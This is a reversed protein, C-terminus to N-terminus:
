MVKVQMRQDFYKVAQEKYQKIQEILKDVTTRFQQQDQVSWNQTNGYQNIVVSRSSQKKAQQYFAIAENCTNIVKTRVYNNAYQEFTGDRQMQFQLKMSCDYCMKHVTWFFSDYQKKGM